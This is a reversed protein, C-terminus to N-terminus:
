LSVRYRDLWAQVHRVTEPQVAANNKGRIERIRWCGGAGKTISLTAREPALVKYIYIGGGRILTAYVPACHVQNRGEEMLQESNSLPIIDETGPIPPRPFSHTAPHGSFSHDDSKRRRRDNAARRRRDREASCRAKQRALELRQMYAIYEADAHRWLILEM